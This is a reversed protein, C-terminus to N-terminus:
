KRTFLYKKIISGPKLDFKAKTVGFAISTKHVQRKYVDLPMIRADEDEGGYISNFTISSPSYKWSGDSVIEGPKQAKSPLCFLMTLALCLIFIKKRFM